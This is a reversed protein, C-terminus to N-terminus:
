HTQLILRQVTVASVCRLWYNFLDKGDSIVSYLLQNLNLSSNCMEIGIDTRFVTTCNTLIYVNNVNDFLPYYCLM